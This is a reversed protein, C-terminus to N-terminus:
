RPALRSIMRPEQGFKTGFKVNSIHLRVRTSAEVPLFTKKFQSSVHLAEYLWQNQNLPVLM